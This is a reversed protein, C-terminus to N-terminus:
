PNTMGLKSRFWNNTPSAMYRRDFAGSIWNDRSMLMAQAIYHVFTGDGGLHSDYAALTASGPDPGIGNCNAAQIRNSSKATGNGNDDLANASNWNCIINDSVKAEAIGTSIILAARASRANTAINHHMSGLDSAANTIIGGGAGSYTRIIDGASIGPQSVVDAPKITIHDRWWGHIQPFHQLASPHTEDFASRYSGTLRSTPYGEIYITNSGPPSAATTTFTRIPTGGLMHLGDSVAEPETIVNYSITSPWCCTFGATANGIFFNDHIIGGSRAQIGDLSGTAVINGASTSPCTGNYIYVNQNFMTRSGGTIWGNHYIVNEILNINCLGSLFLGQSKGKDRSPYAHDIVNRYFTVNRAHAQINAAEVFWSYKNDEFWYSDFNHFLAVAVAGTTSAQPCVMASPDRFCAYFEIGVVAIFDVYHAGRCGGGLTTSLVTGGNMPPSVLPRSSGPGYAGILFPHAADTGSTCINFKEGIFRDGKKLLLWDPFSQHARTKKSAAALTSCSHRDDLKSPDFPLSKVPQPICDGLHSNSVTIVCTGNANGREGCSGGNTVVTPTLTSYGYRDQPFTYYSLYSTVVWHSNDWHVAYTTSGSGSNAVNDGKKLGPAGDTVTAHGGPPFSTPLTAITFIPLVYKAADAVVYNSNVADSLIWVCSGAPVSYSLTGDITGSGPFISQDKSGINCVKAYWGQSFGQAGAASITVLQDSSYKLNITSGCYPPM